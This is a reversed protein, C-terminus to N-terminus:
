QTRRDVTEWADIVGRIVPRDCGKGLGLLGHGDAGHHFLTGNDRIWVFLRFMGCLQIVVAHADGLGHRRYHVSLSGRRDLELETDPPTSHAARTTAFRLGKMTLFIANSRLRSVNSRVKQWRRAVMPRRYDSVGSRATRGATALVARGRPGLHSAVLAMIERPVNSSRAM